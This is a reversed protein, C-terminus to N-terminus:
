IYFKFKEFDCTKSSYDSLENEVKTINNKDKYNKILRQYKLRKTIKARKRNSYRYRKGKKNKMELLSKLGPDVVCWDIDDLEKLQIDTLDDIYACETQNEIKKELQEKKRKEIIEKQQEKPLKKFEEKEKDKKEKLKLKFETEKKKQEEKLKLKYEKKEDENMEKTEEKLRKRKNKKNLKKKKENEVEDKRLM